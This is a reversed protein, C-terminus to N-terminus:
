IQGSQLLCCKKPLQPHRLFLDGYAFKAQKFQPFVSYLKGKRRYLQRFSLSNNEEWTAFLVFDFIFIFIFMM